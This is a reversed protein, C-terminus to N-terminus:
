GLSGGWEMSCSYYSSILLWFSSSSRSMYFSFGLGTIARSFFWEYLCVIPGSWYPWVLLALDWVWTLTDQSLFITKAAAVWGLSKLHFIWTPGSTLTFTMKHTLRVQWSFKMASTWADVKLSAYQFRMTAFLTAKAMVLPPLPLTTMWFCLLPPPQLSRIGFWFLGVSVQLQSLFFLPSWGQLRWLFCPGEFVMVNSLQRRTSHFM